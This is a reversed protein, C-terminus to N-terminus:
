IRFGLCRDPRRSGRMPLPPTIAIISMSPARRSPPPWTTRMEDLREASVLVGIRIWEMRAPLGLGPRAACCRAPIWSTAASQEPLRVPSLMPLTSTEREGPAPRSWCFSYRESALVAPAVERRKWDLRGTHAKGEDSGEGELDGGRVFSVRLPPVLTGKAGWNSYRCCMRSGFRRLSTPRSASAFSRRLPTNGLPPPMTSARTVALSDTLPNVTM